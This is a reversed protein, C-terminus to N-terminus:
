LLNYPIFVTQKRINVIGQLQLSTEKKALDNYLIYAKLNSYTDLVSYYNLRPFTMNESNDTTKVTEEKTYLGTFYM